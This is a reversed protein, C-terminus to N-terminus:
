GKPFLLSASFICIESFMIIYVRRLNRKYKKHGLIKLMKPLNPEQPLVSGGGGGRFPLQLRHPAPQSGSSTARETAEAKCRAGHRWGSSSLATLSWHAPHLPPPTDRVCQVPGEAFRFSIISSNFHSICSQRQTPNFVVTDSKHHPESM